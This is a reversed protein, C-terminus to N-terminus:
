KHGFILAVLPSREEITTDEIFLEKIMKQIESKFTEISLFQAKGLKWIEIIQSSSEAELIQEQLSKLM